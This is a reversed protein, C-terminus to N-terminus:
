LSLAEEATIRKMPDYDLMKQLLCCPFLLVSCCLSSGYMLQRAAHPRVGAEEAPRVAPRCSLSFTLTVTLTLPSGRSHKMPDYVYGRCSLVSGHWGWGWCGLWVCTNKGLGSSGVVWRYVCMALRVQRLNIGAPSSLVVGLSFLGCV